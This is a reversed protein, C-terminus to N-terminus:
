NILLIKPTFIKFILNSTKSKTNGSNNKYVSIRLISNQLIQYDCNENLYNRNFFECQHQHIFLKIKILVVFSFLKRLNISYLTFYSSAYNGNCEFSNQYNGRNIGYYLLPSLSIVIQFVSFFPIMNSIYGPRSICGASM